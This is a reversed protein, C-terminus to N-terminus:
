TLRAVALLREQLANRDLQAFALLGARTLPVNRLIYAANEPQRKARHAAICLTTLWRAETLVPILRVEIESLPLIETYARVYSELSEAPAEPDVQYAAAVGLDCARPTKVLDGFDLVGTVERLDASVVVNHPNLDAHCVQRPLDALVPLAEAEFRRLASTALPRLEEPVDPLLPALKAANQIDWQLVHGAAPHAFGALAATLAANMRAVSRRLPASPEARFLMEGELYTLLRLRGEPVSAETEGDLTRVVRPVPLRAPELHLLAKIQFDTVEASEAPNALKLVFNEVGTEIRWNVDRESTLSTFRGEIGWFRRAADRAAAEGFISPETSLIAGLPAADTV